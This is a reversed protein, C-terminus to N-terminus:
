IHCASTTVKLLGGLVHMTDPNLESCIFRGETMCLHLACEDFNM